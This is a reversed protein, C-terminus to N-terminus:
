VDEIDKTLPQEEALPPVVNARSEPWYEGSQSWRKYVTCGFIVCLLLLIIVVIIILPLLWGWFTSIKLNHRLTAKFTKIDRATKQPFENTATCIYEGEDEAIVSKITLTKNMNTLQIREGENVIITGNREWQIAPWPDGVGPCEMVVEKEVYGKTDQATFDFLDQEKSNTSILNLKNEDVLFTPRSRIFMNGHVTTETLTRDDITTIECKYKGIDNLSAENEFRLYAKDHEIVAAVTKAVTKYGDNVHIIRASSIKLAHKKNSERAAQCWLSDGIPFSLPSTISSKGYTANFIVQVNGQAVIPDNDQAYLQTTALAVLAFLLVSVM